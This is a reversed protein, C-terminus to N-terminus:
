INELLKEGKARCNQGSRPLYVIAKLEHWTSLQDKGTNKEEAELVGHRNSPRLVHGFRRPFPVSKGGTVSRTLKSIKFLNPKQRNILSIQYKKGPHFIKNESSRKPSARM